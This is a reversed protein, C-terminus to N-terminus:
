GRRRLAKRVRNACCWLLEYNLHLGVGKQRARNVIARPTSRQIDRILERAHALPTSGPAVEAQIKRRVEGESMELAAALKRVLRAYEEM